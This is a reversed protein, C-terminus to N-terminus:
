APVRKVLTANDICRIEKVRYGRASWGSEDMWKAMYWQSMPGRCEMQTAQDTVVKGDCIEASGAGICLMAIITIFM